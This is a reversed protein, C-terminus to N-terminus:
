CVRWTFCGACELVSDGLYAGLMSELYICLCGAREGPYACLVSEGPSASLVSELVLVWCARWFLCGACELVSKGPSTGLVSLRFRYGVWLRTCEESFYGLVSLRFRYGVM